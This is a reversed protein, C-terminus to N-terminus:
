DAWDIPGFDKLTLAGPKALGRLGGMAEVRPVVDGTCVLAVIPEVSSRRDSAEIAQVVRGALAPVPNNPSLVYHGGLTAAESSPLAIKDPTGAGASSPDDAM